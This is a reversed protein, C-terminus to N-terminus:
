RAASTDAMHATSAPAERARELRLRTQALDYYAQMRMWFPANSWGVAELKIAMEPSLPCDGNLLHGFEDPDIGIREAAAAESGGDLWLDRIM